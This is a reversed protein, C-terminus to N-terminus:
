LDSKKKGIIVSPSRTINFVEYIYQNHLRTLLSAFGFNQHNFKEISDQYTHNFWHALKFKPQENKKYEGYLPKTNFINLSSQLIPLFM